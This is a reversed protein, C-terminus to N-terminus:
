WSYTTGLDIGIVPDVGENSSASAAVTLLALTLIAGGMMRRGQNKMTTTLPFIHTIYNYKLKIRYRFFLLLSLLFHFDLDLKFIWILYM